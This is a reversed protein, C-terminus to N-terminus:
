VACGDAAARLARARSCSGAVYTMGGCWTLWAAAAVLVVAAMLVVAAVGVAAAVVAVAAVGVVAAVVVVARFRVPVTGLGARFSSAAGATPTRFM